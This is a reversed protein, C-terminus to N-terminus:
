NNNNNVMTSNRSEKVTKVGRETEKKVRILTGDDDYEYFTAYNNEDLEAMLRLNLDDYVFSKMNANFPHIRLDDFYAPDSSTSLLGVTMWNANTPINFSSEYRQWGEIIPGSPSFIIKNSTDSNFYIRIQNRTYSTDNCPKGEKVWASIIMKQGAIPGFEKLKQTTDMGISDLVQKSIGPCSYGSTTYSSRPIISDSQLPTVPTTLVVPHLSDILISYHGSHRETNVIRDAFPRFNWHKVSCTDCDGNGFGYDEFGDFASERYRGNQVVAIPLSENYGYIGAQHRGLPDVNEVELGKKNFLQTSATWSWVTSDAFPLLKGSTFQWFSKYNEFTGDRRINSNQYPNKEARLAYYTYNRKPRWNGFEGTTFPNTNTPQKQLIKAKEVIKNCITVDGSNNYGIPCSYSYKTKGIWDKTSFIINLPHDCGDGDYCTANRLETETNHYIECGFLAPGSVNYGQVTLAHNGATLQIPYIYWIAFTQSNYVSRGAIVQGDLSIAIRNDGGYGLYYIGDIPINISDTLGVWEEVPLDGWYPDPDGCVWIGCRNLVGLPPPEIFLSVNTQKNHTTTDADEIDFQMTRLASFTPHDEEVPPVFYYSCNAPDGTWFGADDIHSFTNTTSDYIYAGCTTYQENYGGKFCASDVITAAFSTDFYCKGGQEYTGAPCLFKQKNCTDQPMPWKQNFVVAGATIIKSSDNTSLQWVNSGNRQIPDKLATFSGISTLINKRGSRIIHLSVDYGNYPQGREDLFYFSKSGGNVDSTDLAWVKSYTPFSAYKDDCYTNGDGTKQKGAVLIEDGSSFIGLENQLDSVIKGKAITVHEIVKDINKYALGMGDYAWHSPYTFSFVPDNFENQTRSLASNGTEGDYLIDKTSVVSGKDIQIVSDIIGYRQIVKTAAISMYKTEERQGLNLLSPIIFVPPIPFPITFIDANVNINYGNTISQQERMDLMLEVDKGIIAVTDISGDPMIASVDNKLTKFESLPDVVKYINETYTVPNAYDTEAYSAQSKLKGHMDNLEIKFGQTLGLYHKSNIRLFSALGPKYRKKTTDDLLSRDTYTPFDYATYFCTEDFGNASRVNKYNISRVKVRSYGVSASPFLSEGLPEEVYGLTVPGLPAIQEVYEIPQHFPNEEGGIGPEYSAVGSSIVLTDSNVVKKTTYIYEKGYVARKQGTMKDWNDYIIVRKVRHGGGIKKYGPSNLRVYSRNFDITKAYGKERAQKDFSNVADKINDSATAIMQVAKALDIDDDNESHPYAKSPLNLRLFQIASTALPSYNDAKIPITAVKVWITTDNIRGYGNSGELSAYGSVYEYGSGFDDTPMQVFIKFYLKGLGDIYKKYIDTNNQVHDAVRIFVYLNETNADYLQNSAHIFDPTSGLGVIKFMQMARRNQVFAYDDSEYTVKMSGGSPLYISDLDWAAANQAAITSDQIAYPYETNTIINGAISGPNSVPAKYNGWRDNAKTDYCPNKSNYNFVYPAQYRSAKNNGNYTFWVKKLTLKGTDGSVKNCLEYSYSFHVTKIPRASIGKKRFEAKSYLNIEKLRKAVSTVSDKHGKENISPLDKRDELVFFAVMTKSEIAHLYWLEKEGYVYNGKDDRTDTKLGENYNVWNDLPNPVSDPTYPVRWTYPKNIGALKSYDFKVADGLDDDSIGDGTKDVYDASVIGSLLFTHAYAPIEESNFYSDKGNQNLTSNDVGHNYKVLSKEPNTYAGNVAFTAEKQKLNYVPTGYIYRRGDDNLVSLQSIHTSKRFSNVRKEKTVYGSNFETSAPPYLYNAPIPRRTQDTPTKWHLRIESKGGREYYELKIKYFQGAVLNLDVSNDTASHEKKNGIVIVDNITLQVGDDSRTIFTYAGTTPVKLQGEWRVSFNDSGLGTLGIGTPKGKYWDFDIQKDTREEYTGTFNRTAFYKGPLGSGAGDPDEYVVNKCNSLQFINPSYNEIYKDLGAADAETANLYSIVQTRKDPDKKIVSDKKLLIKDYPRKNRYRTLYNTAQIIPSSKNSQYLDVSVLDDGGVTNYFSKSIIAKEGPNRFYSPQSFAVIDKITNQEIWPGTQTFARNLNLDAGAHVLDTVGIDISFRDSADKTRIFHDNVYGIDSRYARFMGGTGEGTISFADYTYMPIAINPVAPKERYPIEKERNFDLLGAPNKAGDQFYMYGYSPLALLTDESAIGQKSVYGSVYVSPHVVKAEWGVKATYSYQKSTYPITISPTFTPSAFSIVSSPFSGGVSRWQDKRNQGMQTLGVNMQLSKLGSRSNYAAGISLSGAMGSKEDEDYQKLRVSLSPSVSLGEQSNNTISLGATLSGSSKEGSNISANLGTETGWGKYTNHFLGISAGVTVPAGVLELDAGVTVGITKNEKISTIKKISDNAGTFDDPLGRLNRTISGPNINWGLGVWSAEQDMTIGSRYSLNLPYGGVDMLPISYSFDGSFLDVLNNANVSSFSQSEPQTPGGIDQKKTRIKQQTNNNVKGKEKEKTDLGVLKQDSVGHKNKNDSPWHLNEGVLKEYHLNGAANAVRPLLFIDVYFISLLLWAILKNHKAFTNVFM